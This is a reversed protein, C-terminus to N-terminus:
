PTVRKEREHFELKRTLLLAYGVPIAGLVGFSCDILRWGLPIQRISGCILACPIVLLCTILGAKIAWINRVPDKWAGIFFIALVLHAFALWDTGYAVWPYTNYTDRLGDRVVLIWHDFGSSIEAPSQNEIGRWAAILEMERLLPFATLGSAILGFIVIAIM